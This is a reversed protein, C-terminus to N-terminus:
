GGEGEGAKKQWEGLLMDAKEIQSAGDKDETYNRLM